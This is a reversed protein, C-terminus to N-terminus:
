LSRLALQLWLRISSLSWVESQKEHSAATSVSAAAPVVDDLAQAYGSAVSPPGSVFQM